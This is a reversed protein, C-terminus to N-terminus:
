TLEGCPLQGVGIEIPAPPMRFEADDCKSLQQRRPDRVIEVV